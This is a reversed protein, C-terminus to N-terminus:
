SWLIDNQGKNNYYRALTFLYDSLRNIYQLAIPHVPQEESFQVLLRECKRCETRAVHLYAGLQSGGPLIFNKLTPLESTLRDIEAELDSVIQEQIHENTDSKWFYAGINFLQNQVTQLMKIKQEALSLAYGIHSNLADFSGEVEFILDSKRRRKGDIALSTGKDGSKTYIKVM